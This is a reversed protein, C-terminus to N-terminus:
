PLAIQAVDRASTLVWVSSGPVAWDIMGDVEGLLIGDTLELSDRDLRYYVLPSPGDMERSAMTSLTLLHSGDIDWIVGTLAITAWWEDALAEDLALDFAGSGDAMALILRPEDPGGWHSLILERGDPSWYPRDTVSGTGSNDVDAILREEGSAVDVVYLGAEIDLGYGSERTFAVARGSPAISWTFTVDYALIRDVADTTRWHLEYTRDTALIYAIAAGDPSWLAKVVDDGLLVEVTGNELDLISLDSVSVGAPGAGRDPFDRAMLIQDTQPNYGYYEGMSVPLDLTSAQAEELVFVQGGSSQYFAWLIKSHLQSTPAISTDEWRPTNPVAARTATASHIPFENEVKSAVPAVTCCATILVLFLAALGFWKECGDSM